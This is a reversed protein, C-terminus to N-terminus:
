RHVPRIRDPPQELPEVVLLWRLLVGLWPAHDPCALQAGLVGTLDHVRLVQRELLRVDGCALGELVHRRVARAVDVSAICEYTKSPVILMLLFFAVDFSRGQLCGPGRM